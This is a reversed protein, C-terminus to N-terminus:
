NVAGEPISESRDATGVETGMKDVRVLRLVGAVAASTELGGLAARECSLLSPGHVRISRLAFEDATFRAQAFENASTLTLEVIKRSHGDVDGRIQVTDTSQL